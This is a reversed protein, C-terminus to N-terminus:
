HGTALYKIYTWLSRSACMEAALAEFEPSLKFKKPYLGRMTYVGPRGAIPVLRPRTSRRGIKPRM